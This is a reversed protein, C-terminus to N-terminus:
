VRGARHDLTPRQHQCWAAIMLELDAYGNVILLRMGYLGDVAAHLPPLERVLGRPESRSSCM